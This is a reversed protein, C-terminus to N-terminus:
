QRWVTHFCISEWVCAFCFFLFLFGFINSCSVNKDATAVCFLPCSVYQFTKWKLLNLESIWFFRKEPTFFAFLESKIEYIVFHCVKYGRFTKLWKVFKWRIHITANLFRTNTRRNYLHVQAINEHTEIYHLACKNIEISKMKNHLMTKKKERKYLHMHTM